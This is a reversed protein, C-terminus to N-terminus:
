IEQTRHSFLSKTENRQQPHITRPHIRHSLPRQKIKPQNRRNSSNLPKPKNTHMEPFHAYLYEKSQQADQKNKELELANINQIMRQEDDILEQDKLYVRAMRGLGIFLKCDRQNLIEASEVDISWIMLVNAIRNIRHM